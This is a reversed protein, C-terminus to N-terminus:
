GYLQIEMKAMWGWYASMLWNGGKASLVNCFFNSWSLFSSLASGMGKSGGYIRGHLDSAVALCVVLCVLRWQRFEVMLALVVALFHAESHRLALFLLVSCVGSVWPFAVVCM